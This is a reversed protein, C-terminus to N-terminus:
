HDAHCVREWKCSSGDCVCYSLPDDAKSKIECARSKGFCRENLLDFSGCVWHIKYEELRGKEIAGIIDPRKWGMGKDRMRNNDYTRKKKAMNSKCIEEFVEKMPINYTIATGEVVYKLDGLGDALLEESNIAMAEIVETLEELMLWSRYLREDGIAQSKVAMNEISDVQVKLKEALYGLEKDCLEDNHKSDYISENVIFGNREHFEQVMEQESKMEKEKFNM